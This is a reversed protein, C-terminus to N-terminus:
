GEEEENEENRWSHIDLMEAIESMTEAVLIIAQRERFEIGANIGLDKSEGTTESVLAIADKNLLIPEFQYDDNKTPVAQTVIIFM